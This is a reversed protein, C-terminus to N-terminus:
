LLSPIPHCAYCVVASVGLCMSAMLACCALIFALHLNRVVIRNQSHMLPIVAATRPTAVYVMAFRNGAVVLWLGFLLSKSYSQKLLVIHLGRKRCGVVPVSSWRGSAVCTRMRYKCHFFSFRPRFHRDVVDMYM